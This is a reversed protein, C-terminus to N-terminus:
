CFVIDKRRSKPENQIGIVIAIHMRIGGSLFQFLLCKAYTALIHFLCNAYLHHEDSFFLKLFFM